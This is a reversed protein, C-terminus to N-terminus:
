LPAVEKEEFASEIEIHGDGEYQVGRLFEKRIVSIQSGSDTIRRIKQHGIKVWTTLLEVVNTTAEVLISIKATLVRFDQNGSTKAAAVTNSQVTRSLEKKKLFKITSLDINKMIRCEKM